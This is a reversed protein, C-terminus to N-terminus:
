TEGDLKVDPRPLRAEAASILQLQSRMLTIQREILEKLASLRDPLEDAGMAELRRAMATVSGDSLESKGLAATSAALWHRTREFSYTPLIARPGLRSTMVESVGGHLWGQAVAEYM